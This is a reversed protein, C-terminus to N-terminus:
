KGFVDGPKVPYGRTFEDATMRKSSHPHIEKILLAGSRTGVTMGQKEIALIEGPRGTANPGPIVATKLIKVQIHNITTGAAPWPLLGRVLNHIQAASQGPWNIVGLERTLKPAFTVRGEDQPLLTFQKNRISEITRVLLPCGGAIMRARLSVSDEDPGIGVKETSIIEGADMRPNLKIITLGTVADGNMIAWNIPAAGRYQPLLSGHVNVAMIKPIDLVVPPLFRGYAIVVFLDANYGELERIFDPSKLDDPQLVPINNKLATEKVQSLLMKMGRGKPRDPQTVCAAVKRKSELLHELHAGAFDDSGFFIINM